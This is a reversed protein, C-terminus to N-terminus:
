WVTVSFDSPSTQLQPDLLEPWSPSVVTVWCLAGTCALPSLRKGIHPGLAVQLAPVPMHTAEGAGFPDTHLSLLAQVCVSVHWTPVQMPALGTIQAAGSWHWVVPVQLAAVPRHEFGAFDSPANHSSSFAQVCVSTHWAPVQVPLLEM